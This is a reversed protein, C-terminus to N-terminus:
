GLGMKIESQVTKLIKFLMYVYKSVNYGRHFEQKGSFQLTEKFYVLLFQNFVFDYENNSNLYQNFIFMAYALKLVSSLSKMHFLM